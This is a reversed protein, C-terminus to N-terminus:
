PRKQLRRFKMYVFPYRMWFWVRAMKGRSEYSMYDKSLLLFRDWGLDLPQAMKHWDRISMIHVSGGVNMGIEGQKTVFVSPAYYDKPDERYLEMDTNIYGQEM